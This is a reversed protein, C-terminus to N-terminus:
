VCSFDVPCVSCIKVYRSMSLQEFDLRLDGSKPHHRTASVQLNRSLLKLPPPDPQPSHVHVMRVPLFGHHIITSSLHGHRPHFLENMDIGNRGVLFRWFADFVPSIQHNGSNSSLFIQLDRLDLCYIVYNGRYIKGHKGLCDMSGHTTNQHVPSAPVGPLANGYSNSSGSTRRAGWWEPSREQSPSRDCWVRSPDQRISQAGVPCWVRQLPSNPMFRPPELNCNFDFEFLCCLLEPKFTFYHLNCHPQWTNDFYPWLGMTM